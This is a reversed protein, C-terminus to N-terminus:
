GIAINIWTGNVIRTKVGIILHVHNRTPTPQLLRDTQLSVRTILNDDEFVCFFPNEGSTPEDGSPIEHDVKAM